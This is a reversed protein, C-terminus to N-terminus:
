FGTEASQDCHEKLFQMAYQARRAIAEDPFLFVLPRSRSGQSVLVRRMEKDSGLKGPASSDVLELPLVRSWDIVFPPEATRSMSLFRRYKEESWQPSGKNVAVPRETGTGEVYVQADGDFRTRCVGDQDASTLLYVLHASPSSYTTVVGMEYQRVLTSLFLQAGEPTQEIEEGTAGSTMLLVALSLVSRIM